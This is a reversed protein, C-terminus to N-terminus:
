AEHLELTAGHDASETVSWRSITEFWEPRLPNMAWPNEYLRMREINRCGDWVSSCVMFGSVYQRRNPNFFAHGNLMSPGCNLEPRVQGAKLWIDSIGYLRRLFTLEDLQYNEPLMTAVVFPMDTESFPSYRAAKGRASLMMRSLFRQPAQPDHLNWKYVTGGPTLINPNFRAGVKGPIGFSDLPLVMEKQSGKHLSELWSRIEGLVDEHVVGIPWDSVDISLLYDSDLLDLEQLFLNFRVKRAIAEESDYTNFIECAFSGTKTTVLYDPHRGKIQPEKECNWGMQSFFRYYLLESLASEHRIAESTTIRGHLPKREELPLQRFWLDLETRQAARGLCTPNCIISLVSQQFKNGAANSVLSKKFVTKYPESGKQDKRSVVLKPGANSPSAKALCADLLQPCESLMFRIFERLAPNNRPLRMRPLEVLASTGLRRIPGLEPMKKVTERTIHHLNKIFLDVLKAAALLTTADDLLGLNPPDDVIDALGDVFVRLRSLREYDTSDILIPRVTALDNM